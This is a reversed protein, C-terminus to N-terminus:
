IQLESGRPMMNSNRAKTDYRFIEVEENPMNLNNVNLAIIPLNLILDIMKSNIKRYNRPNKKKREAKKSDVWNKKIIGDERWQQSRQKFPKYYVDKFQYLRWELSIIGSFMCYPSNCYYVEM